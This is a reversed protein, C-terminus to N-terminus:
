FIGGLFLVVATSIGLLVLPLMSKLVYGARSGQRRARIGLYCSLAICLGGMATIELADSLAAAGPTWALPLWALPLTIAFGWAMFAIMWKAFQWKMQAQVQLASGLTSAAAAEELARKYETLDTLGRKQMEENLAEQAEPVLHNSLAIRALQDDALRSYYDSFQSRDPM